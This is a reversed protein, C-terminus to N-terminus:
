GVGSYAQAHFCSATMSWRSVAPPRCVASWTPSMATYSWHGPKKAAWAARTRSSPTSEAAINM